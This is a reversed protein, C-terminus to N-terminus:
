ELMKHLYAVGEAESTLDPNTNLLHGADLMVGMNEYHIASLLRSTQVPNTFTFGPWWQNEVLFIFPWARGDLLLNIAEAAADIVAESTHLWRYTYGDELSVDSVHFVVYEAGWAVARELDARYADLLTDRGAPGGFFYTWAAQSGFKSLLAAEDSNWFDLWDPWFTLHYGIHLPQPVHTQFDDGSWVVELGDCGLASCTEALDPTHNLVEAELPLSMLQKM